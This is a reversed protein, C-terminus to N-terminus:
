LDPLDAPDIARCAAAHGNADTRVRAPNDTDGYGCGQCHWRHRYGSADVDVVLVLAGGITRFAMLPRTVLKTSTM